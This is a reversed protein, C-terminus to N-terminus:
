TESLSNQLQSCSEQSFYPLFLDCDLLRRWRAAERELDARRTAPPHLTIAIGYLEGHRLWRLTAISSRGIWLPAAKQRTYLLEEESLTLENPHLQLRTLRRYPLLGLTILALSLLVIGAGWGSLRSAPIGNGFLMLVLGVAAILSGRLVVRRLLEKDVSTRVVELVM